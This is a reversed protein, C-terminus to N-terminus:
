KGGMREKIQFNDEIGPYILFLAVLVPLWLNTIPLLPSVFLYFRVMVGLYGALIALAGLSRPLQGVFLLGSNRLLQPFSLDMLALQPWLYLSLGLVIWVGAVLGAGAMTNLGLAGAHFLLFIQVSLLTGGVAGPLLSAKASNAWARRYKRWWIGPEDRLGRLVTDALACLQPGALAGGLLGTIPAYILVHSSLSYAMGLLFPICGALALFGARFLDWFDRSLTEWLRFIGRKQPFDKEAILDEYRVMHPKADIDDHEPLNRENGKPM